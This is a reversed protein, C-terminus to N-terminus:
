SLDYLILKDPVYSNSVIYNLFCITAKKTLVNEIDKTNCSIRQFYNLTIIRLYFPKQKFGKM